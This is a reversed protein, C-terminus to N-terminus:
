CVRGNSISSSSNPLEIGEIEALFKSTPSEM